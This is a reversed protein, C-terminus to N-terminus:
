YNNDENEKRKSYGSPYRKGRQNRCRECCFGCMMEHAIRKYSFVSGWHTCSNCIRYKQIEAKDDKMKEGGRKKLIHISIYVDGDPQVTWAIFIQFYLWNLHQTLNTLMSQSADHADNM